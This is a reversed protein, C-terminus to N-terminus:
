NKNADIKKRQYFIDLWIVKEYVQSVQDLGLDVIGKTAIRIFDVKHGGIVIDEDGYIADCLKEYIQNGAEDTEKGNNTWHIHLYCNLEKTKANNMGGLPVPDVINPTRDFVGISKYRKGQLKYAYYDEALGLTEIWECVDALTIM